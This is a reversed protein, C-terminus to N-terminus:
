ESWETKLQKENETIFRINNETILLRKKILDDRVKVKLKFTSGTHVISPELIKETIKIEM